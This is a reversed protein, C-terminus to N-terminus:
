NDNNCLGSAEIKLNEGSPYGFGEYNRGTYHDWDQM